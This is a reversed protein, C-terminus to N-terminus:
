RPLFALPDDFGDESTPMIDRGAPHPALGLNTIRQCGAMGRLVPVDWHLTDTFGSAPTSTPIIETTGWPAPLRRLTPLSLKREPVGFNRM